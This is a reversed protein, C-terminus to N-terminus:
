FSAPKEAAAQEEQKVAAGTTQAQQSLKDLEKQADKAQQDVSTSVEAVTQQVSAQAQEAVQEVKTEAQTAAQQITAQAQDAAQKLEKSSDQQFTKAQDLLSGAQPQAKPKAEAVAQKWTQEPTKATQQRHSTAWVIGGVVAVIGITWVLGKNM